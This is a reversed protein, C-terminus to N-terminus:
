IKVDVPVADKLQFYNGCDCRQPPGAKLLMWRIMTADEECVCGVIREEYGSPVITPNDKTGPPGNAMKLRFPDEYGAVLADYEAKELGTAQE